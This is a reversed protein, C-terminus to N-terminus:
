EGGRGNETPPKRWAVRRRRRARFGERRGKVVVAVAVLFWGCAERLIEDWTRM